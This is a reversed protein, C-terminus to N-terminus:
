RMYCPECVVTHLEAGTAAVDEIDDQVVRNRSDMPVTIKSKQVVGNNM